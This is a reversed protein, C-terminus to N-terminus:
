MEDGDRYNRFLACSTGYPIVGKPYIKTLAAQAAIAHDTMWFEWSLHYALEKALNKRAKHTLDM